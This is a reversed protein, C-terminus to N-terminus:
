AERDVRKGMQKLSLPFLHKGMRKLAAEKERDLIDCLDGAIADACAARRAFPNIVDQQMGADYCNTKLIAFAAESIRPKVVTGQGFLTMRPNDFLCGRLDTILRKLPEYSPISLFHNTISEEFDESSSMHSMKSSGASYYSSNRWDGIPLKQQLTEKAKDRAISERLSHRDETTVGFTAMMSLVYGLSEWDDLETRSFKLQRLNAISMYPGTGTRNPGETVKDAVRVACDFDILMGTPKRDRDRTFLINHPSIDRHLISCESLIRHNAQMADAVVVILEDVSEVDNLRCAIMDLVIRKHRRFKSEQLVDKNVMPFATSTDDSMPARDGSCWRTKYCVVGGAVILPFKGQMTEDDQFRSRIERLYQVEDHRDPAQSWESCSWADKVFRDLDFRESDISQVLQAKATAIVGMALEFPSTPIGATEYNIVDAVVTAGVALIHAAAADFVQEPEAALSSVYEVYYDEGPNAAFGVIAVVIKSVCAQVAASDSSEDPVPFRAKAIKTVAETIRSKASELISDLNIDKACAATQIGEIWDKIANRARAVEAGMAKTSEADPTASPLRIRPPKESALFCTTHRGFVSEPARHMNQAYFVHPKGGDLSEAQIRLCNYEPLYEITKDFGLISIPCFAWSALLKALDACQEPVWLDISPSEYIKDHGFVYLRVVTACVTMGWAFRRNYQKAYLLRTYHILQALAADYDSAKRKAEVVLLMDAFSLQKPLKSSGSIAIDIRTLDLSDRPRFDFDEAAAIRRPRGLNDRCSNWYGAVLDAVFAFLASIAPYMDKENPFSPPSPLTEAQGSEVGNDSDEGASNNRGPTTAKRLMSRTRPRFDYRSTTTTTPTTAAGPAGAPKGKHSGILMRVAKYKKFKSAPKTRPAAKAMEAFQDAVYAMAGELARRESEGEPLVPKLIDSVVRETHDNVIEKLEQDAAIKMEVRSAGSNEGIGLAEDEQGAEDTNARMETKARKRIQFSSSHQYSPLGAARVPTTPTVMGSAKRKPSESPEAGTQTPSSM